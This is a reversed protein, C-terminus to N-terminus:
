YFYELLIYRINSDPLNAQVDSLPRDEVDLGGPGTHYTLYIEGNERGTIMMTHYIDRYQNGNILQVVEGVDGWNRLYQLNNQNVVVFGEYGPGRDVKNRHQHLGFWGTVSWPASWAFGNNSKWFQAKCSLSSPTVYWEDLAWETVCSGTGNQTFGGAELAQSVFGTCDNNFDPHGDTRTREGHESNDLAYQAAAYGNYGPVAAARVIGFNHNEDTMVVPLYVDYILTSVDFADIETDPGYGGEPELYRHAYDYIQEGMDGDNLEPYVNWYITDRLFTEYDYTDDVININNDSIYALLYTEIATVGSIDDALVNSSIILGGLMCIVLSTMVKHVLKM